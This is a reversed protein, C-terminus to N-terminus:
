KGSRSNFDLLLPLVGAVNLTDIAGIKSVTKRCLVRFIAGGFTNNAFHFNLIHGGSPKFRDNGDTLEVPLEIPEVLKQFVHDKEDLAEAVAAKWVAATCDRGICVNKGQRGLGKKVVWSDKGALVRKIFSSSPATSTYTEPIYKEVLAREGPILRNQIVPDWLLGMNMKNDHLLSSVSLDNQAILAPPLSLFAGDLGSAPTFFHPYSFYRFCYDGPSLKKVIDTGELLELTVGKSSFYNLEFSREKVGERDRNKIDWLFLGRKKGNIDKLYAAFIDEAWFSSHLSTNYTRAIHETLDPVVSYVLKPSIGSIFSMSGTDINFEIVKPGTKTLICDPRFFPSAWRLGDHRLYRRMEQGLRFRAQFQQSKVGLRRPLECILNKLLLLDAAWKHVDSRQLPIMSTALIVKKGSMGGLAQASQVIDSSFRDGIEGMIERSIFAPLDKEKNSLKM